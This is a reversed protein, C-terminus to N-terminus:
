NHHHRSQACKDFQKLGNREFAAQYMSPRLLSGVMSSGMISDMPTAATTVLPWFCLARWEHQKFGKPTSIEHLPTLNSKSCHQSCCNIYRTVYDPLVDEDLPLGSSNNRLLSVPHNYRTNTCNDDDTLVIVGGSYSSVDYSQFTLSTVVGLASGGGHLAALVDQPLM